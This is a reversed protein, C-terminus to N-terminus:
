FVWAEPLRGGYDCGDEPERDAFAEKAAIFTGVSRLIFLGHGSVAPFDVVAMGFEDFARAM